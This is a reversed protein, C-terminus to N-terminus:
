TTGRYLGQRTDYIISLWHTRQRWIWMYTQAHTMEGALGGSYVRKDPETLSQKNQRTFVVAWALRPTHPPLVSQEGCWCCLWKWVEAPKPGLCVRRRQTTGPVHLGSEAGPLYLEPFCGSLSQTGLLYLVFLRSSLTVNYRWYSVAIHGLGLNFSRLLLTFDARIKGSLTLNNKGLACKFKRIQILTQPSDCSADVAHGWGYGMKSITAVLVVVWFCFCTMVWTQRYPLQSKWCFGSYIQTFDSSPLLWSFNKFFCLVVM